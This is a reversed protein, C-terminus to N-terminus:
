AESLRTGLGEGVWAFSPRAFSASMESMHHRNGPSQSHTCYMEIGILDCYPHKLVHLAGTTM